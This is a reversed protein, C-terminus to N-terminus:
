AAVTAGNGEPRVPGAEGQSESPAVAASGEPRAPVAERRHTQQGGPTGALADHSPRPPALTSPEGM